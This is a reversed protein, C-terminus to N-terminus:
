QIEGWVTVRNRGLNKSIYLAQDAAKLLDIAGTGHDPFCAVGASITTRILVDHHSLSANAISQRLEDARRAAAEVSLNPLMLLFEEGGFRCIIDSQRARSQLRNAVIILFEDGAQHGYLDNIDKFHDIDVLIISVPTSSRKGRAIEREISENLYRRNFLGTLPDRIAQERLETQLTQIEAIRQELEANVIRLEAESRRVAEEATKQDTIDEKIAIFNITKDNRDKIPAIVAKEWYFEGNKKRNLFEGRWIQGASITLWMERYVEKPTLGSSVLNANKGVAENPAYGTLLAFNPNVYEIEGNLNTIVISAPSQEVGQTLQLLKLEKNKRDTVDQVMAIMGDFNAIKGNLPALEVEYYCQSGDPNSALIEQRAISVDIQQDSQLLLHSLAQQLTQGIVNATLRLQDRAAQNIDLIHQQSDMVLFGTPMMDVLTSRALPIISQLRYRFFAYFLIGITVSVAVPAFNFGPVPSYGLNFALDIGLPLVLAFFVLFVQKRKQLSPSLMNRALIYLSYGLVVQAYIAALWYLPGNKWTLVALAGVQVIEFDYRFLQSNSNTWVTVLNILPIILLAVLRWGRIPNPGPRYTFVMFLVALPLLITGSFRIQMWIVKESIATALLGMGYTFTVLFSILALPILSRIQPIRRQIWAFVALSLHVFSSFLLFSIILESM